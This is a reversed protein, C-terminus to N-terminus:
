SRLLNNRDFLYHLLPNRYSAIFVLFPTFGIRYRSLTGLNPTSLALFICLLVVYVLVSYYLLHDASATKKRFLSSVVLVLFLLNEFSALVSTAGIAEWVFPRFLGSILAWPANICVSWWDATLQYYHILGEAKSIKVFDNHNTILVDLFRSLYFNPHMLSSAAILIIFIGAWLSMKYNNLFAFRNRLFFNLLSTTVVAMFLATWYYKLNWAVYFSIPMMVWELWNVKAAKVLKIFLSALFYIGALAFTEKVLGSGWFVVSPFFLFALAASNQSEPFHQTVTRFLYWAAIFSIFAFYVASIWYNNSSILTFISILKILFLSREQTNALENWVSLTSDSTWLFQFYLSLDRRAFDALKVADDFFLWTDNASYYYRYVLGLAVAMSVKFLLAVWFLRPSGGAARRYFLLALSILIAINLLMM